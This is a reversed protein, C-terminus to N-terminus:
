QAQAQVYVAVAATIFDAPTLPRPAMQLKGGKLMPMMKMSGPKAEVALFRHQGASVMPMTFNTQFNGLPGVPATGAKAGQITDVFIAVSNGPTFKSGRLVVPLGVEVVEGPPYLTGNSTNVMAISPGCGGVQCVTITATAVPSNLGGAHLQHVGPTTSAPIVVSTQFSGGAPNVAMGGVKQATNNDLWFAIDGSGAAQTATKLLESTPACTIADCEQVYFDYVTAPKLNTADFTLAGTTITQPPPGWTLHSIPTGLVTKNWAVTIANVYTGKFFTATVPLVQGAVVEPQSVAITPAFLSVNGAATKNEIQPKAPLPYVLGFDLDLNPVQVAIVFPRLGGLWALYLNKFLDNFDNNVNTVNADLTQSVVFGMLDSSVQDRLHQDTVAAIATGLGVVAVDIGKAIFAAAAEPLSSGGSVGVSAAEGITQTMWQALAANLAGTVDGGLLGDGVISDAATCTIPLTFDTAGPEVPTCTITILVDFVFSYVPDQPETPCNGGHHCTHPSAVWFVVGNLPADYSFRIRRGNVTQLASNEWTEQFNASLYGKPNLICPQVDYAGNPAASVRQLIQHQVDTCIGAKMANWLSDFFGTRFLQNNRAPIIGNPLGAIQDQQLSGVEAVRATGKQDFFGLNLRLPGAIYFNSEPNKWPVLEGSAPPKSQGVASLALVALLVTIATKRARHPLSLHSSIFSGANM